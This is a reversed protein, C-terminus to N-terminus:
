SVTSDLSSDSDPPTADPDDGHIRDVVAERIAKLDYRDVVLLDPLFMTKWKEQEMKVRMGEPTAVVYKADWTRTHLDEIRITVTMEDCFCKPDPPGNVADFSEFWLAEICIDGFEEPPVVPGNPAVSGNGHNAEERTPAFQPSGDDFPPAPTSESQGSAWRALVYFSIVALVFIAIKSGEGASFFQDM